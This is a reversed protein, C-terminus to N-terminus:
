TEYAQDDFVMKSNVRSRSEVAQPSWDALATMRNIAFARVSDVFAM